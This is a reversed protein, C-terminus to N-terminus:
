QRKFLNNWVIAQNALDSRNRQLDEMVAHGFVADTQAGDRTSM